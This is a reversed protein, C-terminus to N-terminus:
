LLKGPVFGLSSHKSFMQHIHSSVTCWAILWSKLTGLTARTTGLTAPPAQPSQLGHPRKCESHWNTRTQKHLCCCLVRIEHRFVM